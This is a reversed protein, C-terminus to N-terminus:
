TLGEYAQQRENVLLLTLGTAAALCAGMTRSVRHGAVAVALGTLVLADAGISVATFGLASHSLWLRPLLGGLLLAGAAFGGAYWGSRRHVGLTFLATLVLYFTMEYSLTWLVNVLNSGGLMDGLMFLHAFVSSVPHSNTGWLGALGFQNLILVTGIVTLYLPFLRFVRSLWFSRLSGKRELSAPVIYGSVLFFVLVGYLGPDIVNFVLSFAHPIMRPGVHDFVVCLAAIGRLADLWALRQGATKPTTAQAQSPATTSPATTALAPTSPATTSPATTAPGTSAPPRPPSETPHRQRPLHEKLGAPSTAKLRTPSTATPHPATQHTPSASM